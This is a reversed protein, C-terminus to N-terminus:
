LRIQEILLTSSQQSWKKLHYKIISYDIESDLLNKFANYGCELNAEREIGLQSLYDIVKKAPHVNIFKKEYMTSFLTGHFTSTVIYRAQKVLSLFQLPSVIMQEDCWKYNFGVSIIKLGREQAFRQIFAKYPTNEQYSYYILFPYKIEIHNEFSMWKDHLLITPDCVRNVYGIGIKKLFDSTFQDRVGFWSIKKKIWGIYDDKGKYNILNSYGLSPAYAIVRNSNIGCGYFLPSHDFSPNDINWVEDSGIIALDLFQYRNHRVINLKKWDKKYAFFRKLKTITRVISKAIFKQSVVSKFSTRVDVMFVTHNKNELFKQMAFAQLFSGYNYADFITFIGIKM